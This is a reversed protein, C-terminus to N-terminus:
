ISNLLDDIDDPIEEAQKTEVQKVGLVQDEFSSEDPAIITEKPVPESSGEKFFESLLEKLAEPTQFEVLQSYDM